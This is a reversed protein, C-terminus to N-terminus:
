EVIRPQYLRNEPMKGSEIWEIIDRACDSGIERVPQYVSPFKRGSLGVVYLGDYGMIAMDAQSYGCEEMAKLIGMAFIDCTAMIADPFGAYDANRFAEMFFRYGDEFRFGLRDTILGNYDLGAENMANIYGGMREDFASRCFLIRRFGKQILHKAAMYGGGVDDFLYSCTNEINYKELAFLIPVGSDATQKLLRQRELDMFHSGKKPPVAYIIGDPNLSLIEKLNEYEKLGYYTMSYIFNYKCDEQSTVQVIGEMYMPYVTTEFEESLPIVVAVTMSKGTKLQRAQRNIVYGMRDATEMVLRAKEPSISNMAENRLVKSVLSFSVGCERAVDKLTVRGAM